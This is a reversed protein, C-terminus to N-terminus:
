SYVGGYWRTSEEFYYGLKNLMDQMRQNLKYNMGDLTMADRHAGGDYVVVLKSNNCYEEHRARWEEQTYFVKESGLKIGESKFFETFAVILKQTEM